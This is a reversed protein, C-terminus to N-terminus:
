DRFIKGQKDARKERKAKKFTVNPISDPHEARQQGSLLGDITLLQVRAYKNGADSTYFGVSAADSLM